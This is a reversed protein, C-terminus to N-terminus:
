DESIIKYFDYKIGLERSGEYSFHVYDRYVFTNDIHTQCIGRECLLEELFIVAAKGEAHTLFEKVILHAELIDEVPFNCRNLSEGHMQAKALCQGLNVGNAPPPSFVIPTVGSERLYDLTGLFAETVVKQNTPVIKGSRLLLHNVTDLYQIFPSALVAYKVSDNKELWKRVSDNFMMCSHAVDGRRRRAEIPAIDLIPGCSSKTMQILGVKPKSALIGEVLHMAFSDGWVMIEPNDSTKCEEFDIFQGECVESLGRNHRIRNDIKTKFLGSDFSRRAFGDSAIGLLGLVILASASACICQCFLKRPVTERNRFPAEVYKWSIFALPVSLSAVLVLTVESLESISSNKAFSLLPQHWLYISYSVLGIGALWELGLLRGVVSQSSTFIIVLAAGLTPVLAYVSPFPLTDDFSFVAYVILFVGLFGMSETIWLSSTAKELSDGLYTKCYAVVVGISLEWFRTPLLYFAASPSHTSAWQAASLSVVAIVVIAGLIWHKKFRWIGLLLLPFFIYYQEEVALSWTHLLPKLESAADWYDSELWFHFNSTFTTVTVLSQSFDKLDSPLMWLWAFPLSAMMVFFLAPLIRRARREYFNTLSFQGQAMESLLITTILYGSIVFFVDVGVYGGSFAPVGTHFLVVPIVAIARLGDIEKRYKTLM